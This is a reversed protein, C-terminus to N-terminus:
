LIDIEPRVKKLTEPKSLLRRIRQSKVATEERLKIDM